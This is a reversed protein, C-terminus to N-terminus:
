RCNSEISGFTQGHVVSRERVSSYKKAKNPAKVEITSTKTANFQVSLVSATTATCFTVFTNSSLNAYPPSPTSSLIVVISKKSVNGLPLSPMLKSRHDRNPSFSFLTSTKVKPKVLSVSGGDDDDDDGDTSRTWKNSGPIKSYDKKFPTLKPAKSNEQQKGEKGSDIQLDIYNALRYPKKNMEETNLSQQVPQVNPCSFIRKKEFDEWDMWGFSPNENFLEWDDINIATEDLKINLVSACSAIVSFM